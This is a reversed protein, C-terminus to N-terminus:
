AVPEPLRETPRAPLCGEAGASLLLAAVALAMAGLPAEPAAQATLALSAAATLMPVRWSKLLVALALVWCLVKVFGHVVPPVLPAPASILQGIARNVLVPWGAAEPAAGLVGALVALAAAVLLVFGVLLQVPRRRSWALWWLAVGVAALQAALEVTALVASLQELVVSGSSEAGYAIGITVVRVVCALGLAGVVLSAARAAPARAGYRGVWMALLGACAGAVVGSVEPLRLFMASGVAMTVLCVAGVSFARVAIPWRSRSVAVLLGVALGVALIAFLQTATAAVFQATTVARDVGLWVGILAPSVARGLLLALAGLLAVFWAASATSRFGPMTSGVSAVVPEDESPPSGGDRPESREGMHEGDAM